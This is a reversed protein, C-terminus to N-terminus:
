LTKSVTSLTTDPLANGPFTSTSLAVLAPSAEATSGSVPHTHTLLAALLSDFLAKFATGKLLADTAGEGLEITGDKLVRIETAGSSIRAADPDIEVGQSYPLLGPVVFANNLSHLCGRVPTQIGSGDSGKWEMLNRMSFHIAVGDGVELPFTIYAGGGQPWVVPLGGLVNETEVRGDEYRKNVLPQVDVVTSGDKVKVAVVKGPLVTYLAQNNAKIHSNIVDSQTLQM